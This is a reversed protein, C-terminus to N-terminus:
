PRKTPPIEEVAEGSPVEIATKAEDLLYPHCEKPAKSKSPREVKPCRVSACPVFKSDPFDSALTSLRSCATDGDGDKRWLEAERWLADDRLTSTKFEVYFRHLTARAAARDNLKTEQINAIRLISPVYKPREYSGMVSSSERFSLLRELHAIAEKHRGLREEMDGARYLADDFYSGFPYPWQAAIALYADRARETQGSKDLRRATEYAVTEEIKKGKTKARLAELRALAAQPAGTTQDDHRTLRLVAVRAVGSEPFRVVVDELGRFGAAEDKGMALDAAKYAAQASYANEPKANAIATLEASARAVDGARARALAAEYRAFVADRSVKATKAAEDYRQAAEEFRGARYARQADDVSKVYAEGRNPGGCAVLALGLLLSTVVTRTGKM